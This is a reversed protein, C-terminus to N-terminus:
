VGMPVVSSFRQTIEILYGKWYPGGHTKLYHCEVLKRIWHEGTKKAFPPYIEGSDPDKVESAFREFSFKGNELVCCIRQLIKKTEGNISPSPLGGDVDTVYIPVYPYGINERRKVIEDENAYFGAISMTWGYRGYSCCVDAGDLTIAQRKGYPPEWIDAYYYLLGDRKEPKEDSFTCHETWLSTHNQSADALDSVKWQKRTLLDLSFFRIIGNIERIAFKPPKSQKNFFDLLEERLSRWVTEGFVESCYADVRHRFNYRPHFEHLEHTELSTDLCYPPYDIDYPPGFSHVGLSEYAERVSARCDLAAVVHSGSLLRQMFTRKLEAEETQNRNDRMLLDNEGVKLGLGTLFWQTQRRLAEPRGTVFVIHYGRCIYDRVLAATEEVCTSPHCHSLYGQWDPKGSLYTKRRQRDDCLTGDIDCVVTKEGQTM